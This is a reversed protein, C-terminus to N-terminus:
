FTLERQIGEEFSSPSFGFDMRAGEYSFDKNENLRLVQEGKIPFPIHLREFFNLARVVPASPIHVKWVRKNM